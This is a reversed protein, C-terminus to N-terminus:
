IGLTNIIQFRLLLSSPTTRSLTAIAHCLKEVGRIMTAITSEEVYTRKKAKVQPKHNPVSNGEVDLADGCTPRLAGSTNTTDEM